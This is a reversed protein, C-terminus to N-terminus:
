EQAYGQLVTDPQALTFLHGPGAVHLAGARCQAVAKRQWPAAPALCAGANCALLSSLPLFLYRQKYLRRLWLLPLIIVLLEAIPLLLIVFISGPTWGDAMSCSAYSADLVHTQKCICSCAAGAVARPELLIEIQTGVFVLSTCISASCGNALTGAYSDLHQCATSGYPMCTLRCLRKM